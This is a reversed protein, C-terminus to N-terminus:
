EKKDGSAVENKQELLYEFIEDSEGNLIHKERLKKLLLFDVRESEKKIKLIEQQTKKSIKKQEDQANRASKLDTTIDQLIGTMVTQNERLQSIDGLMERTTDRVVEQISETQMRAKKKSIATIITGVVGSSLAVIILEQWWM